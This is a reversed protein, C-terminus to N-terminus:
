NNRRVYDPIAFAVKIGDCLGVQLPPNTLCDFENSSM